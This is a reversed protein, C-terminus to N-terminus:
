WFCLLNRPPLNCQIYSLYSTCLLIDVCKSIFLTIAEPIYALLCTFLLVYGDALSTAPLYHKRNHKHTDTWQSGVMCPAPDGRYLVRTGVGERYLARPGWCTWVKENHLVLLRCTPTQWGVPISEQILSDDRFSTRWHIYNKYKTCVKLTNLKIFYPYFTFFTM